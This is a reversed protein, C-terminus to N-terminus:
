MNFIFIVKFAYEIWLKYDTPNNQLKMQYEKERNM